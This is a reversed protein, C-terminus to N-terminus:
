EAQIKGTMPVFLVDVLKETKPGKETKVIKTLQQVSGRPGLPMVIRGGVKLQKMLPEPAKPAAATIIIADFPAYEPWGRYGDGQKIKIKKYGLKNLRERAKQALEEDIEISYVNNTFYSLVAAQYGSGTGIELVKEGPKVKLIQTMLAVIYPQSITQGHGILVPRDAYAEKRRSKPVFYERKVTGMVKLVKPDTIDRGKLDKEVMKKRQISYPELEKSGAMSGTSLASLAVIVIVTGLFSGAKLKKEKVGLCKM